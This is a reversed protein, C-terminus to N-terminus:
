SIRYKKWRNTSMSMDVTVPPGSYDKLTMRGVNKSGSLQALEHMSMRRDGVVHVIGQMKKGTVEKIGQAVNDSFLYTGFRDTFAGPYKWQKKAVFNTRIICTNANQRTVIEGCLKTLSYYNKPSPVDDETYYKEKEGAFVCATSIYILYCGKLKKVSNVINQTGEVNTKWALEKNEECERIGVMAAAHIVIDPSFKAMVSDVKKADMVNMDKSSPTFADHFFKRLSSGLDGSAGTILIKM